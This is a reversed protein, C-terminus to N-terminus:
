TGNKKMRCRTCPNLISKHANHVSKYMTPEKSLVNVIHTAIQLTPIEKNFSVADNLHIGAICDLTMKCLCLLLWLFSIGVSSQSGFISKDWVLVYLGLCSLIVSAVISLGIHFSFVDDAKRVVNGLESHRKRFGAISKYFAGLDDKFLQQIETNMQHYENALLNCILILYGSSTMWAFITYANLIMNIVAAIRPYLGDHIEHDRFMDVYDQYAMIGNFVVCAITLLWVVSACINSKRYISGANANYKNRYAQWCDLFLSHTNSASTAYFAIFHSLSQLDWVFSKLSGTLDKAFDFAMHRGVTLTVLILLITSYIFGGNLKIMKHCPINVLKKEIKFLLGAASLSMVMSKFLRRIKPTSHQKSLGDLTHIHDVTTKLTTRPYIRSPEM